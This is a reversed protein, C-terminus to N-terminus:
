YAKFGLYTFSFIFSLFISSNLLATNPIYEM